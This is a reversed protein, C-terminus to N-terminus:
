VLALYWRYDTEPVEAAFRERETARVTDYLELLRPDFYDRLQKSAARFSALAEGWSLPLDHQLRYANGTVPEPPELGHELGFLVGALIAALVLYPNADAGAVRHEIRRADAEGAPIRVAVTRNNFGWCASTPAYSLPRLRRYSNANPAFFLMSSAMLALMGAVARAMLRGGGEEEAFRNVGCGDALSLHVHMGSGALEQFPKAMFTARRGVARAAAKVCRKFAFARDAAAVAGRQHELNVEFQAPAFEAVAAEAAIGQADLFRQLTSLFEGEEELRELSYVEVARSRGGHRRSVPLQPRGAADLEGDLLYFELEFAVVPLLGRAELRRELAGLAARPDAYFPEGGEETLGGIAQARGPSWPVPALTAPDLALPRDADGESWVLPSADVNNGSTDVSYLTSPLRLGGAFARRAAALHVRKGRPIGALDPVLLEVEEVLPHEDLFRQLSCM